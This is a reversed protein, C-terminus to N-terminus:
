EGFETWFHEPWDDKRDSVWLVDFKMEMKKVDIPDKNQFRLGQKVRLGFGGVMACDVSLCQYSLAKEKGNGHREFDWASFCLSGKLHPDNKPTCMQGVIMPEKADNYIFCHILFPVCKKRDDVSEETLIKVWDQWPGGGQYDPDARLFVQHEPMNLETYIQIEERKM